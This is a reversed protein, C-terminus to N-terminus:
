WRATRPLGRGTDHPITGRLPRPSFSRGITVAPGGSWWEAWFFNHALRAPLRSSAYYCNGIALLVVFWSMLAVHCGTSFLVTFFLLPNPRRFVDGSVQKWGSEDMDRDLNELDEAAGMSYRAFDKKLTKTLIIAVVACLFLCLM